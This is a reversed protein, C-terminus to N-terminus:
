LSEGFLSRKPQRAAVAAIFPSFRIRIKRRSEGLPSFLRCTVAAASGRQHHFIFQTQKSFDRRDDISDDYNRIM